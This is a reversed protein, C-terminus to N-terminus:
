QPRRRRRSMVVIGGVGTGLLWIAGPLPVPNVAANLVVSHDLYQATFSVRSDFGMWSLSSFVGALDSADADGDDFSIITFADGDNPNYGGLSSVRLTGDLSLNGIVDLKDFDLLSALNFEILGAANQTYDGAILLQGVSTVTGPQVQGFNEVAQTAGPDYTGTGQLTGHNQLNATTITSAFTAGAATNVTGQNDFASTVRLTGANVNLTGTNDLTTRVETTGAGTKNFTGANSFVAGAGDDTGGQDSARIYNIGAARDSTWIGSAANLVTGNGAEDAGSRRANMDVDGTQTLTGENRFTRGGDLRLGTGSITTTGQVTTTGLGSLAGVAFSAPGSVTLNGAGTLQGASMSFGGVASANTFSLTGGTVGLTGAGNLSQISVSGSRFTTDFGGLLADDDAGPLAPNWNEPLDWFSDNPGIWNINAAQAGLSGLLAVAVTAALFRKSKNM